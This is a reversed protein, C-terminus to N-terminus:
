DYCQVGVVGSMATCLFRELALTVLEFSAVHWVAGACSRDDVIINSFYALVLLAPVSSNPLSQNAM